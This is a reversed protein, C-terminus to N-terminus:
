QEFHKQGTQNTDPCSSIARMLGRSLEQKLRSRGASSTGAKNYAGTLKRDAPQAADRGIQEWDPDDPDLGLVPDCGSRMRFSIGTRFCFDAKTKWRNVRRRM